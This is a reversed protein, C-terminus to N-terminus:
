EAKGAEISIVVDLEDSVAPAFAGLNFDSRKVVATADFGVWDKGSIPHAGSQTLKADLVVPKTVENITLDGTIKATSDGTVEIDTSTFTIQDGDEAGFFDANMFHEFRAEWGTFLSKVPMSVTVTSNAPNDKDFDIEGEFGSFMNYTTSYGFHNYSFLVQSHSADLTYKEPAAVAATGPIALALVVPLAFSKM